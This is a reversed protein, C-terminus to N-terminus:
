RGAHAKEQRGLISSAVHPIATGPRRRAKTGSTASILVRRRGGEGERRTRAGTEAVTATGRNGDQMEEKTEIGSRAEDRRGGGKMDQMRERTEM